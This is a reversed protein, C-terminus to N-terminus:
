SALPGPSLTKLVSSFPSMETMQIRPVVEVTGLTDVINSAREVLPM